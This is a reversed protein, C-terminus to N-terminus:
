FVFCCNCAPVNNNNRGNNRLNMYSNRLTQKIVLKKLSILDGSVGFMINCKDIIPIYFDGILIMNSNQEQEDLFVYCKNDANDVFYFKIESIDLAKIYNEQRPIEQKKLNKIIYNNDESKELIAFSIFKRASELEKSIYCVVTQDNFTETCRSFIYFNSEGSMLINIECQVSLCRLNLKNEKLRIIKNKLIINQNQLENETKNNNNNKIEIKDWKEIQNLEKQNESEKIELDGSYFEELSENISIKIKLYEKDEM